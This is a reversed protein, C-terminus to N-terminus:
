FKFIYSHSNGFDAQFACVSWQHGSRLLVWPGDCAWPLLCVQLLPALVLENLEVSLNRRTRQRQLSIIAETNALNLAPIQLLKLFSIAPSILRQKARISRLHKMSEFFCRIDESFFALEHLSCLFRLIWIVCPGILFFFYWAQCVVCEYLLLSNAILLQRLFALRSLILNMCLLINSQDVEPWEGEFIDCYLELFSVAWVLKLLENLLLNVFWGPLLAAPKAELDVIIAFKGLHGLM